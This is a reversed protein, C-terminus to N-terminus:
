FRERQRAAVTRLGHYVKGPPSGLILACVADRAIRIAAFSGLIHIKTDALVIRTRSANEITFRTRGDKGAIRGIARSLHDGTLAKVDKIEFSEIYIEEIRLLALADEVAFGLNFCQLFNVAKTITSSAPSLTHKSSKIEIRKSGVNMRVMLGLEEVLPTYIEPWAKKLPTLRQPSITVKATQTLGKSSGQEKVPGFDLLGQNQTDTNTTTTSPGTLASIPQLDIMVADDDNAKGQAANM